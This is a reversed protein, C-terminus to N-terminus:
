FRAATAALGVSEHLRITSILEQLTDCVCAVQAASMRTFFPLAISRESVSETVPFNGPRFGYAERYFRQLHIPSFYSSCGIGSAKLQSLLHDRHQRSFEPILTVVYVFWSIETGPEELKPPIVEAVDRLAEQYWRAVRARGALMDDLRALQAVGLACHIDSLRYNYGLLDHELWGSGEARGQNRWSRCLSAIKADDTVIAGGEGTTMQKNPYFAFVGTQGFTGAAREGVKAGIAECADEIVTLGNRKGIEIIREIQCPRGFVHVPLIARTRPTIAAEIQNTDINFTVPDIDVFVPKAREYLICNASAVFSFPTTIVEDGDRISAAKICLHLGSTGSNVAIAFRAGIQAALHSEFQPLKPGLSLSTGQLVELVSARDKDTLDPASLPIPLM